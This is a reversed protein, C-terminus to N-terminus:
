LAVIKGPNMINKPDIALKIGRMVDVGLGHEAALYKMKGVGVGHEGTCTGDMDLARTVLRELFANSVKLQDADTPDAFVLM